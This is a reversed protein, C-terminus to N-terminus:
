EKRNLSTALSQWHSLDYPAIISGAFQGEPNVLLVRDFHNAYGSSRILSWYDSYGNTKSDIIQISLGMPVEDASAQAQIGQLQELTRVCLTDCQVPKVFFSSWQQEPLGEIPQMNRPFDLLSIGLELQEAQNFPIQNFHKQYAKNIAVAGLVLLIILGLLFRFRPLRKYNDIM